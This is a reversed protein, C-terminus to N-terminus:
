FPLRGKIVGVGVTSALMPYKFAFVANFDSMEKASSRSLVKVWKVQYAMLQARKWDNSIWRASVALAGFALGAWGYGALLSAISAGAAAPRGYAVGKEALVNGDMASMLDAALADAKDSIAQIASREQASLLRFAEKSEILGAGAAVEALQSVLLQQQRENEHYAAAEAQQQRRVEADAASRVVAEAQKRADDAAYHKALRERMLRSNWAFVSGPVYQKCYCIPCDQVDNREQWDCSIEWKCARCKWKVLDPSEIMARVRDGATPRRTHESTSQPPKGVVTRRPDSQTHAGPSPVFSVERRLRLSSGCFGCEIVVDIRNGWNVQRSLQDNCKPCNVIVSASDDVMRVRMSDFGPFAEQAARVADSLSAGSVEAERHDGNAYQLHVRFTAM